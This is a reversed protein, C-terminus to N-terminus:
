IVPPLRGAEERTKPVNAALQMEETMECFKKPCPGQFPKTVMAKILAERVTKGRFMNSAGQGPELRAVTTGHADTEIEPWDSDIWNLMDDANIDRESLKVYKAPDFAGSPIWGAKGTEINIIQFMM